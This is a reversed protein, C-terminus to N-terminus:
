PRPRGPRRPPPRRTSGRPPASRPARTGSRVADRRPLVRRARRRPILARERRRRTSLAARARTPARASATGTLPAAASASGSGSGRVRVERDGDLDGLHRRADQAGALVQVHRAVRRLSPSSAISRGPAARRILRNRMLTARRGPRRPRGRPGRTQAARPAVGRDGTAPGSRGPALTATSSITRAARRRGARRRRCTPAARARPRPARRDRGPRCGACTGATAGRRRRGAAGRTETSTGTTPGGDAGACPPVPGSRPWRRRARRASGAPPRSRSSAAATATAGCIPTATSGARSAAADAPVGPRLGPRGVERVLEAVVVDDRQRPGVRVDGRRRVGSRGSRTSSATSRVACAPMGPRDAGDPSSHAGPAPSGSSVVAATVEWTPASAITRGGVSSRRSRRRRVGGAGGLPHLGGVARHGRVRRVRQEGAQERCRLPDVRTRRRGGGDLPREGLEGDDRPLGLGVLRVQQDGGPAAPIGVHRGDVASVVAKASAGQTRRAGTAVSRSASAGSARPVRGM